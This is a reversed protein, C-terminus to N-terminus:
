RSAVEPFHLLVDRQKDGVILFLRSALSSKCHVNEHYEM